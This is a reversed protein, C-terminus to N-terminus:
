CSIKEDFQSFLFSANASPKWNNKHKSAINSHRAYKAVGNQILLRVPINNTLKLNHFSDYKRHNYCTKLAWNFQKELTSINQPISCLLAPIQSQSILSNILTGKFNEPVCNQVRFSKIGQAVYFTKKGRISLQTKTLQLM